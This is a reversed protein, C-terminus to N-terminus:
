EKAILCVSYCFGWTNNNQELSNGRANDGMEVKLAAAVRGKAGTTHRAIKQRWGVKVRFVTLLHFLRFM